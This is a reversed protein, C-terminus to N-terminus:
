DDEDDDTENEDNGHEVVFDLNPVFDHRLVRHHQHFNNIKKTKM